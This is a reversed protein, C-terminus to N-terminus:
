RRTKAHSKIGTIKLVTWVVELFEEPDDWVLAQMQEYSLQHLKGPKKALDGWMRDIAYPSLTSKTSAGPAFRPPPLPVVKKDDSRGHGSKFGSYDPIERRFSPFDDYFDDMWSRHGVGGRSYGRGYSPYVPEKPERKVPLSEWDIAVARERLHLLFEVDQTENPSHERDYGVSLNTCEAILGIYNKTDTFVGSSCPKYKLMHSGTNLAHGLAVAFEQSCCEAGGQHTIIDDTGRRDFAIARDFKKLFDKRNERMWRSGIGGKEEGRHFIYTGPVNADIMELLLWVGSGDDAGLPTNDDKYAIMLGDDYRADNPGDEWHVTDTHASFLTKSSPDTVIVVNGEHEEHPFYVDTIFKKVWAKEGESEHPRKYSLMEILRKM